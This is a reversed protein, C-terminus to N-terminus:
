RRVGLGCEDKRHIQALAEDISLRLLTHAGYATATAVAWTALITLTSRFRGSVVRSGTMWLLDQHKWWTVWFGVILPALVSLANAETEWGPNLLLFASGVVLFLCYTVMAGISGYALWSVYGVTAAIVYAAITSVDVFKLDKLPIGKTAFLIALLLAPILLLITFPIGFRRIIRGLKASRNVRRQVHSLYFSYTQAIAELIEENRLYESDSSPKHPTRGIWVQFGDDMQSWFVSYGYLRSYTSNGLPESIWALETATTQPAPWQTLALKAKVVESEMVSGTRGAKELSGTAGIADMLKKIVHDLERENIDRISLHQTAM